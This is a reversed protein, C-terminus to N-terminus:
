RPQALLQRARATMAEASETDQLSAPEFAHAPGQRAREVPNDFGLLAERLREAETVPLSPPSLWLLRDADGYTFAVRYRARQAPSLHAIVSQTVAAAQVDDRELAILLSAVTRRVDIGVDLRPTLGHGQLWTDLKLATVSLPDFVGIRLGRLAAPRDITSEERVLLLLPVPPGATRALIRHGWDIAALRALHVPLSVLDLRGQMADTALAAFDPATFIQVSRQLRTALHERLPQYSRVVGGPPLYPIIGVRLPTRAALDSAPPRAQAVLALGSAGTTVLAVLALSACALARPNM